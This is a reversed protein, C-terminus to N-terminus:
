ASHEINRRRCCFLFMSNELERQDPKEVSEEPVIVEILNEQARLLAAAIKPDGPFKKEAQELDKVALGWDGLGGLAQARRFLLKAENEPSQTLPLALSAARKALFFCNTSAQSNEQSGLDAWARALNSLLKVRRANIEVRYRPILSEEQNDPLELHWLGKIYLDVATKPHTLILGNGSDKVSDSAILRQDFSSSRTVTKLADIECEPLLCELM